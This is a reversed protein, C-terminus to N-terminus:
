NHAAKTDDKPVYWHKSANMHERGMNGTKNVVIKTKHEETRYGRKKRMAKKMNERAAALMQKTPVYSSQCKGFLHTNFEEETAITRWTM